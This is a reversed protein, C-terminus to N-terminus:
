YEGREAIVTEALSGPISSLAKRVEELSITPDGEAEAMRMADHDLWDEDNATEASEVTISVRQRNPLNLPELPQLVGNEYIANVQQRM